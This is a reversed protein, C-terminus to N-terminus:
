IASYSPSPWPTPSMTAGPSALPAGSTGGDPAHHNKRPSTFQGDHHDNGNGHGDRDGHGSKDNDDRSGTDEGKGDGNGDGNRDDPGSKADGRTDTGSLVGKCYKWVRSTGGAAGELSRKRTPDLNKGDRMDRCASASGSWDRRSGAGPGDSGTGPAAGTDGGATDRSGAGGSPSNEPSPAVQPASPSVFPRDPTAAASVSAGPEPQGDGFHPLVGTGAAAAVGGVMGVALVAALALHAPRRRRPRGAEADPTGIRVLGADTRGAGTRHRGRAAPSVWDDTRDARVKRFAALAAEEGPLGGSTPAPEATLAELTKALREAQDRDAPDVAELSEGRLLREATELDLWEYSEDAM